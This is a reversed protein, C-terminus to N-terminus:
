TYSSNLDPHHVVRSTYERLDLKDLIFYIKTKAKMGPEIILCSIAVDRKFKVNNYECVTHYFARLLKPIFIFYYVGLIIRVSCVHPMHVLVGGVSDPIPMIPM